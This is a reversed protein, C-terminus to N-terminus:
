PWGCPGHLGFRSATGNEVRNRALEPPSPPSTRFCSRIRHASSVMAFISIGGCVINMAIDHASPLLVFAVYAPLPMGYFLVAVYRGIFDFVFPSGGRTHNRLFSSTLLFELFKLLAVIFFWVPIVSRACLAGYSLVVYFLDALIDLVAGTRTESGYQRAIRGDLFDTLFIM